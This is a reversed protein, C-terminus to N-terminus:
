IQHFILEGPIGAYKDWATTIMHRPLKEADELLYTGEVVTHIARMSM